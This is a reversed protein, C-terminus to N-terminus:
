LSRFPSSAFHNAQMPIDVGMNQAMESAAMAFMDCREKAGAHNNRWKKMDQFEPKATKKKKDKKKAGATVALSVTLWVTWVTGSM